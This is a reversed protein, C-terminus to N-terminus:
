GIPYCFPPQQPVVVCTMGPPCGGPCPSPQPESRCACYSVSGGGPLPLNETMCSTEAPCAGPDCAPVSLEGCPTSDPPLCGCVTEIGGTISGCALGDPCEGNCVPASDGCPQHPSVCSCVGFADAGCEADGPCWGGCGIAEGCPPNELTRDDCDPPVHADIGKASFLGIKSQKVLAFVACVRVDGYEVRVAVRSHLRSLDLGAARARIKLPARTRLNATQIEDGTTSAKRDRYAFTVIRPTQKVRWADPGLGPAAALTARQDEGQSFVTLTLGGVSPDDPSGPAPVPIAPDKLVLSLVGKGNRERLLIQTGTVPYDAAAAAAPAACAVLMLCAVLTRQM